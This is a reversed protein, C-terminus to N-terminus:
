QVEGIKREAARILGRVERELADNAALAESIILLPGTDVPFPGYQAPPPCEWHQECAPCGAVGEDAWKLPAHDHWEHLGPLEGVLAKYRLDDSHFVTSSTAVRVLSEGPLPAPDALRELPIRPKRGTLRWAGLMLALAVPFVVLPVVYIM